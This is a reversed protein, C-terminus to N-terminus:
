APTPPLAYLLIAWYHCVSGGIVFLHWVMHFYPVRDFAFFAIGITYLVGGTVLLALGTPAIHSVLAGPAVVILWGMIAYLPVAIRVMRDRAVATGVVGAAALTWEIAALTYGWPGRLNLLAFPTYTGAILLYIASRDIIQFVTKARGRPLAHYMTSASYVAVLALAYITDCCLVTWDGRGAAVIVLLVAGAVGVLLGVGHTVSNAIEEGLSPRANVRHCSSDFASSSRCSTARRM